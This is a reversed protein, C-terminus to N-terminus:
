DLFDVDNFESEHIDDNIKFNFKSSGISEAISENNKIFKNNDNKEEIKVEKEVGKEKEKMNNNKIKFSFYGQSSTYINNPIKNSNINNKNENICKNKDDKKLDNKHNNNKIEPINVNVKNMNLNDINKNNNIELDVDSYNFENIKEENKFDNINKKEKSKNINKNKNDFNIKKHFIPKPSHARQFDDDIKDDFLDDKKKTEEQSINNIGSFNCVDDLEDFDDSNNNKEIVFRDIKSNPINTEKRITPKKIVKNIKNELLKKKGQYINTYNENKNSNNKINTNIPNKKMLNAKYKIPKITKENLIIINSKEENSYSNDSIDESKSHNNIDNENDDTLDINFVINKIKNKKPKNIAKKKPLNENSDNKNQKNNDYLLCIM